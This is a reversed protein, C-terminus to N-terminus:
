QNISQNIKPASEGDNEITEIASQVEKLEQIAM